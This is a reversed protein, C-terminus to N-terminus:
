GGEIPLTPVPRGKRAAWWQIFIPYFLTLISLIMFTLAIPREFFIGWSGSSLILSRRMSIEVLYGLLLGLVTAAPPFGYKKMIYGVGGFALAVLPEFVNNNIAYSGVIVLALVGTILYPVRVNVVMMCLRLILFGVILMLLNVIVLGSFLSYVIEPNREFLMPGPRIGHLVLAALMIAASNSGPIGLALAPVLDGGQVTNNATEPAAVGEYSGKGFKEPHKSWRKAENYAVFSSVTQGAGPMVGVIIGVIAGIGTAKWVSRLEAFTPFETSTRENKIAQWQHLRSAQTLMETVAFLGILVPVLELGEFLELREFTFRQVGSLPDLGIVAIGLGIFGAMLGKLMNRESLSSIIVLGFLAVAFYEPPGFALTVRSLPILLAILVIVSFLGGITGTVLSIGLAKGTKGQVHLEYGDFITAAASATGPTKILIAPISGGYGSGVWVGALMMLAVSTDMGFTLPLLLAMAISGSIGPLAGGLIGWCVGLTMAILSAPQLAISLGLAFNELM